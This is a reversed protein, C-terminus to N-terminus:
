DYTESISYKFANEVRDYTIYVNVMGWTHMYRKNIIANKKTVNRFTDKCEKFIEIFENYKPHAKNITQGEYKKLELTIDYSSM